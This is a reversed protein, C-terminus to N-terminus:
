SGQSWPPESRFGDVRHNDTAPPPTPTAIDAGDAIADLAATDIGIAHLHRRYTMYLSMDLQVQAAIVDEPNVSAPM